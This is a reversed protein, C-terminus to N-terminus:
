FKLSYLASKLVCAFFAKNLQQGDNTMRWNRVANRYSLKLPHFLAVDMPQMLHTANPFLAVLEIEHGSCFDCEKTLHFRHGISM